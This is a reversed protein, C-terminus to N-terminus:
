PTATLFYQLHHERFGVQVLNLFDRGLLNRKIGSSSFGIELNFEGVEPITLNVRHLYGTAIEGFASGYSLPKANMLDIDLGTLLNGNFLSREAGTDLYVETEIRLAPNDEGAIRIQLIPFSGSPLQRYNFTHQYEVTVM